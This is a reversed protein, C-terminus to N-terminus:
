ILGTIESLLIVSRGGGAKRHLTRDATFLPVSLELALALFAADYASIDFRHALQLASRSIAEDVPHLELGLSWFGSLVAHAGAPELSKKFRLANALEYVLLEPVHIELAGGLWADRLLLAADIDDESDQHIWKFIVSTDLVAANM